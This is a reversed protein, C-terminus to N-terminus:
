SKVIEHQFLNWTKDKSDVNLILNLNVATL